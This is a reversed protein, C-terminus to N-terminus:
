CEPRRTADYEREFQDRLEIPSTHVIEDIQLLDQVVHLRSDISELYQRATFKRQNSKVTRTRVRGGLLSIAKTTHTIAHAVEVLARAVRSNPRM